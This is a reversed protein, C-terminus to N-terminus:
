FLTLRESDLPFAFIGLLFLPKQEPEWFFGERGPDNVKPAQPAM